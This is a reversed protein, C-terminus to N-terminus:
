RLAERFGSWGILLCKDLLLVHEEPGAELLLRDVYFVQAVGGLVRLIGRDIAGLLSENGILLLHDAAEGRPLM